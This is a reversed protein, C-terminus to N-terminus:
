SPEGNQVREAQVGWEELKAIAIEIMKPVRQRVTNTLETSMEINEPQIGILYIEEPEIDLLQAASLVDSLGLHHISLKTNIRRLIDENEITGIFGPNENFNVADLLIIRENEELYPLLDNGMTGGDILHIPPSFRWHKEMENLVHIGAGEDSQLLNGIAMVAIKSTDM